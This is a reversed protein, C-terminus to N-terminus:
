NRIFKFSIKFHPHQLVFVDFLTKWKERLCVRITSSEVLSVTKRGKKSKFEISKQESKSKEGKSSVNVHMTESVHKWALLHSREKQFGVKLICFMKIWGTKSENLAIRLDTGLSISTESVTKFRTDLSLSYFKSVPISLFFNMLHYKEM